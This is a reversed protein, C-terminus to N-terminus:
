LKVFQLEINLTVQEDLLGIGDALLINWPMNWNKRHIKGSFAFALKLRDWPDILLESRHGRLTICHTEGHLTLDGKIEHINNAKEAFSKSEFRINPYQRVDFFDPGMLNHDRDINGTSLSSVPAAFYFEATDFYEEVIVMSAEFRNFKGSIKTFGLHKISFGIESHHPDIAWTQTKM